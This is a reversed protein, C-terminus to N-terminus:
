EKYITVYVPTTGTVGFVLANWLEGECRMFEKKHERRLKKVKAELVAAQHHELGGVTVRPKVPLHSSTYKSAKGERHLHLRRQFDNTIGTYFTGGRCELIYLVWVPEDRM